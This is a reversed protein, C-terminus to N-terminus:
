ANCRFSWIWKALKPRPEFRLYDIYSKHRFFHRQLLNRESCKPKGGETDNKWHEMSMINQRSGAKHMKGV